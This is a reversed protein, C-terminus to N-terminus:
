SFLELIFDCRIQNQNKPLLKIPLRFASTPKAVLGVARPLVTSIKTILARSKSQKRYM